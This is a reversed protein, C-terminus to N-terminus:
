HCQVGRFSFITVSHGDVVIEKEVKGHKKFFKMCPINKSYIASKFESNLKSKILDFIERSIERFKPSVFITSLFSGNGEVGFYGVFQDGQSIVYFKFDPHTNKTLAKLTDSVCVDLGDGSRIHWKGILIPDSAYAKEIWFKLDLHLDVQLM